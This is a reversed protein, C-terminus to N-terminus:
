EAGREPKIMFTLRVECRFLNRLDQEVEKVIKSITKGGRGVVLKAM